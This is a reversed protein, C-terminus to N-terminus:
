NVTVSVTATATIAPNVSDTGTVRYQYQGSTSFKGQRSCASVGSVVLLLLLIMSASLWRRRRAPIGFALCCALVAGGTELWKGTSGITVGVPLKSGKGFILVEPRVVGGATLTETKPYMACEPPTMGPYDGVLSCSYNITGAYGAISTTPLFGAMTAHESPVTEEIDEITFSPNFNIRIANSASGAFDADGSYVAQVADTGVPLSSLAISASGSADTSSSGAVGALSTQGLVKSGIQLSIIGTPAIGKSNSALKVTFQIPSNTYTTASASLSLTTTAKSVDFSLGNSTATAYDTDGLYVAKVTENGAPLDATTLVATGKAQSTDTAPLGSLTAQAIIKTGIELAVTGTPAIGASDTTLTVTFSAQEGVHLKTPSSSRLEIQTVAQTVTVSKTGVSPNLSNDGHYAATITYKGADLYHGISTAHGTSDLTYAGLNLSGASFTVTGTAIGDPQVMGKVIPSRKGYPHATFGEYYGYPTGTVLGNNKPDYSSVTVATDSSEPTVTVSIPDSVSGTVYESGGYSAIVKYTGGPFDNISLSGTTGGPLLPFSGIAEGKPFVKPDVEASLAVQGTPIAGGSIVTADVTIVEGHEISTPALTLYTSSAALGVSAWNNIMASVDVSGLGSALDYGQRANYGTLYNAGTSNAVCNLSVAACPVSNNGSRIEHYTNTTNRALNYLVYDAQGQREGTAQRVLALIGAFAPASASTGGIGYLYFQNAPLGDSGPTCDSVHNGNGDTDGDYCIGWSAYYLGNASLLSVDPISRATDTAPFNPASQWPPKPYGSICDIGNSGFFGQSCNSKGGGTALMNAFQNAQPVSNQVSTPPFNEYSDNWPTEPIYSQASGLTGATNSLSVYSGFHPQGDTGALAYFDTGGVAINYPTSAIGNVQLGYNAVTQSNPDDCAASGGDGTAVTVSIGQSAAQEWLSNFFQNGTYALAAECSVFSVSLVDVLNDNVARTAALDVGQDVSTNAAIYLYVKAGPALGNAVQTDLYAEVADDNIKPDPGDIIVTPPNASLGFVKRYNADQALSINSDGVIGIKAGTGDVTANSGPNLAKNPTDYIVAADAPGVYLYDGTSNSVTYTAHATRTKQDFVGRPGKIAASKPHFDNLSSIGAVVPSLAAPISPDAINAHHLEGDVRYTHISTGFAEKIQGTSGSFEIATRGATPGQVEFGHSKLWATVVEVDAEAAGWQSGFQQPTMWHHFNPSNHDHLSEIMTQLATEREPSRKLLLLMRDAATSAPAEGMDLARASAVRTNGKLVTRRSENVAEHILAAQPTSGGSWNSSANSQAPLAPVVVVAMASLAMATVLQFRRSLRLAPGHSSTSRSLFTM